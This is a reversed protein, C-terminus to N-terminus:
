VNKYYRFCEQGSTGAVDACTGLQPISTKTELLRRGAIADPYEINSVRLAAEFAADVSSDVPTSGGTESSTQVDSLGSSYQMSGTVDCVRLRNALTNQASQDEM